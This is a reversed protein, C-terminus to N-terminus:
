LHMLTGAEPVYFAMSAPFTRAESRRLRPEREMLARRGISSGSSDAAACRGRFRPTFLCPDFARWCSDRWGSSCIVPIARSTLFGRAGAGHVAARDGFFLGRRRLEADLTARASEGGLEDNLLKRPLLGIAQTWGRPRARLINRSGRAPGQFVAGALHFSRTAPRRTAKDALRIV